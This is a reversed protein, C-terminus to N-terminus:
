LLLKADICDLIKNGIDRNKLNNALHWFDEPEKVRLKLAKIESEM